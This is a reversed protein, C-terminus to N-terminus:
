DKWVSGLHKRVGIIRIAIVVLQTIILLIVVLELSLVPIFLLLMVVHVIAAIVVSYNAYGPFGMAALLPYGLLISPVLISALIAFLELLSASQEFGAGYILAIMQYSFLFVLMCVVLNGATALTFLTRYTKIDRRKSIYPYLSDSLPVYLAGIANFLKEAATYYGVAANGIVIGIVFANSNTYFSVAARSVFFHCSKRTMLMITSFRPLVLTVKFVKFVLYFSIVSAVIFGFSNMLPVYIFDDSNRVVLFILLAFIAKAVVNLITIFKMREMGQYFWVPFYTQGVTVGYSLLYIHYHTQFRDFYNTVGLLILFGGLLLATKIIMISWFIDNVKQQDDRHLAIERTASLSFGFDILMVFYQNFAYAFMVLGFTEAGLVRVLYPFTVLPLLYNAGQLVSLSVFNELLKRRSKSEFWARLRWMLTSEGALADYALLRADTRVLYM